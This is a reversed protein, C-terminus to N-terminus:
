YPNFVSSSTRKLPPTHLLGRIYIWTTFINESKLDLFCLIPKMYFQNKFWNFVISKEVVNEKGILWSDGFWGETKPMTQQRGVRLRTANAAMPLHLGAGTHCAMKLRGYDQFFLELRCWGESCCRRVRLTSAFVLVSLLFYHSGFGFASPSIFEETHRPHHNHQQLCANLSYSRM